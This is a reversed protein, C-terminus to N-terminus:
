GMKDYGEVGDGNSLDKKGAKAQEVSPYSCYPCNRWIVSIWCGCGPCRRKLEIRCRPCYVFDEKIPHGCHFCTFEMEKTNCMCDKSEKTCILYVILALLIIGILMM